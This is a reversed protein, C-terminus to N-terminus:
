MDDEQWFAGRNAQYLFSNKAGRGHYRSRYVTYSLEFLKWLLEVIKGRFLRVHFKSPLHEVYMKRLFTIYYVDTRSEPSKVTGHSDTIHLIRM